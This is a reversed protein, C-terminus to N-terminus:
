HLINEDVNGEKTYKRINDVVYSCKKEVDYKELTDAMFIFHKMEFPNGDRKMFRDLRDEMKANYEERELIEMLQHVNNNLTNKQVPQLYPNDKWNRKIRLSEKKAITEDYQIRVDPIRKLLYVFMLDELNVASNWFIQIVADRIMNTLWFNNNFIDLIYKRVIQGIRYISDEDEIDIQDSVAQVRINKPFERYDIRLKLNSFASELTDESMLNDFVDDFSIELYGAGTEPVSYNGNKATSRWVIIKIKKNGSKAESIGKLYTDNELKKDLQMDSSFFVVEKDDEQDKMESLIDVIPKTNLRYKDWSGPTLDGELKANQFCNIVDPTVPMSFMGKEEPIGLYEKEKEVRQYRVINKTNSTLERQYQADHYMFQSDLLFIIDYDAIYKGIEINRYQENELNDIGIEIGCEHEQRVDLIEELLGKISETGKTVIQIIIKELEEEQRVKEMKKIYLKASDLYIDGCLCIRVSNKYPNEWIYERVYQITQLLNIAELSAISNQNKYRLYYPFRYKKNDKVYMYKIGDIQIIDNPIIQNYEKLYHLQYDYVIGDANWYEFCSKNRNNMQRLYFILLPNYCSIYLNNNIVVNDIHVLRELLGSSSIKQKEESDLVIIYKSLEYFAEYVKETEAIYGQLNSPTIQRNKLNIWVKYFSDMRKQIETRKEQSISLNECISISKKWHNKYVERRVDPDQYNDREMGWCFKKRLEDEIKEIYDTRYQIQYMDVQGKANIVPLNFVVDDSGSIEEVRQQVISAEDISYGEGVELLHELALWYVDLFKLNLDDELTEPRKEKLRKKKGLLQEVYEFYIREYAEQYSRNCLMDTLIKKKTSGRAFSGTKLKNRRNKDIDNEDLESIQSISSIQKHITTPKSVQNIRNIKGKALFDTSASSWMSFVYLNRNAALALEKNKNYTEEVKKLYEIIDEIDPSICELLCKLFDCFKKYRSDRSISFDLDNMFDDLVNIDILQNVESEGIDKLSDIEKLSKNTFIICKKVKPDNRLKIVNAIDENRRVGSLVTVKVEQAQEPETKIYELLEDSCGVVTEFFYNAERLICIKKLLKEYLTKWMIQRAYM